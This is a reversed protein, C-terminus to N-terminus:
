KLDKINEIVPEEPFFSTFLPSGIGVFNLNQEEASYVMNIVSTVGLRDTITANLNFFCVDLNNTFIPGGLGYSYKYLNDSSSLM